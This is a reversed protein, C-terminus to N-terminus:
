REAIIKELQKIEFGNMKILLDLMRGYHMINTMMAIIEVSSEIDQPNTVFQRHVIPIYKSWPQKLPIILNQTSKLQSLLFQLDNDDCRNPSFFSKMHKAKQNYYTILKETETEM